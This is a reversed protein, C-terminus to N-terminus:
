LKNGLVCLHAWIETSKGRRKKGREMERKQEMKEENRNRWRVTLTIRGVEGKEGNRDSIYFGDKIGKVRRKQRKCNCKKFIFSQLQWEENIQKKFRKNNSERSRHWNISKEGKKIETATLRGSELEKFNEKSKKQWTVNGQHKLLFILIDLYIWFLSTM